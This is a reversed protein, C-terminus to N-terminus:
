RRSRPGQEHLRPLQAGSAKVEHRIKGILRLATKMEEPGDKNHRLIQGIFNNAEFHKTLFSDFEPDLRRQRQLKPATTLILM